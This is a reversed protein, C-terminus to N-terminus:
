QHLNSCINHFALLMCKDNHFKLLLERNSPNNLALSYRGFILNFPTQDAFLPSLESLDVEDSLHLQYSHAM